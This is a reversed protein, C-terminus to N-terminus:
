RCALFTCTTISSLASCFLSSHPVTSLAFIHSASSISRVMQKYYGLFKYSTPVSVEWGLASVMSQEALILEKLRCLAPYCQSPFALTLVTVLPLLVDATM